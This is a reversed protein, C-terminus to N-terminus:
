TTRGYPSHVPLHLRSDTGASSDDGDVRIVLDFILPQPTLSPHMIREGMPKPPRRRKAEEGEAGARGAMADGGSPTCGPMPHRRRILQLLLSGAPSDSSPHAPESCACPAPNAHRTESPSAQRPPLPIHLLPHTRHLQFPIHKVFTCSVHYRLHSHIKRAQGSYCSRNAPIKMSLVNLAPNM